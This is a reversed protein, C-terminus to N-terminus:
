QEDFRQKLRVPANEDAPEATILCTLGFETTKAYLGGRKITCVFASNDDALRIYVDKTFLSNM